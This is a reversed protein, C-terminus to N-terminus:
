RASAASAEMAQTKIENLVGYLSRLRDPDRLLIPELSEAAARATTSAAAPDNLSRNERSWQMRSIALYADAAAKAADPDDGSNSVMHNLTGADDMALQAIERRPALPSALMPSLKEGYDNTMQRAQQKLYAAREGSGAIHDFNSALVGEARHMMEVEHHDRYYLGAFTTAVTLSAAVLLSAAMSARHRIFFKTM